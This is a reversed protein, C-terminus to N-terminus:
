AGELEVMPKGERLGLIVSRLIVVVVGVEKVRAAVM